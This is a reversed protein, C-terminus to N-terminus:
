TIGFDISHGKIRFHCLKHIIVYDIVDEPAKMLNVNLNVTKKQNCQGMTSIIIGVITFVFALLITM